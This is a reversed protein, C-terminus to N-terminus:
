WITVYPSVVAHQGGRDAALFSCCLLMSTHTHTHTHTHPPPPNQAHRSSLGKSLWSLGLTLERLFPVTQYTYCNWCHQVIVPPVAASSTLHGITSAIDPNTGAVVAIHLKDVKGGSVLVNAFTRGDTVQPGNNPKRRRWEKTCSCFRCSSLDQTECNWCKPVTAGHKKEPRRGRSPLERVVSKQPSIVASGSAVM